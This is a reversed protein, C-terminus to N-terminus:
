SMINRNNKFQKGHTQTYNKTTLSSIYKGTNIYSIRTLKRVM